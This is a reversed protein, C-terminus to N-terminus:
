RPVVGIGKRMKTLADPKCLREAILFLVRQSAIVPMVGALGVQRSQVNNLNAAGPRGETTFDQPSREARSDGDRELESSKSRGKM